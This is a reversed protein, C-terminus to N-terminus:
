RSGSKAEEFFYKKLVEFTILEQPLRLDKEWAKELSAALEAFDQAQFEAAVVALVNKNKNQRKQSPYFKNSEEVLLQYYEELLEIEYQLYKEKLTKYIAFGEPDLDGAYYINLEEIKNRKKRENALLNVGLLEELFSFSSVIKKGQGYIVTDFNKAFINFGAALAKKAGIFASHNEMILINKIQTPDQTWYVFLHNYQQAKLDALSLKLNNLLKKGEARSLFKEDAFLELSREERSAWEREAKSNLFNCLSFLKQKLEETQQEPRKLYYNLNLHRSLRLIDKDSWHQHEKKVLRWRKKLQPQRQNFDSSKITSIKHNAELKQLLQYLKQYGGAAQYASVGGLKTKFYDELEALEFRKRHALEEKRFKKFLKNWKEEEKM